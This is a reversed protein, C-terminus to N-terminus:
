TATDILPFSYLDLWGDTKGDPGVKPVVEYAGKGTLITQHTPCVDCREKRGHYAEYCKKGVLPTAHSYWREMTQNVGIINMDKDLISMGDQISAFVNDLFREAERLTEETHGSPFSKTIALNKLSRTGKRDAIRATLKKRRVSHLPIPTVKQYESIVRKPKKAM